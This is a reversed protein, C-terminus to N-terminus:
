HLWEQWESELVDAVADNFVGARTGRPPDVWVM